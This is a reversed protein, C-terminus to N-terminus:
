LGKLNHNFPDNYGFHAKLFELEERFRPIPLHVSSGYSSCTTKANKRTMNGLYKYFLSGWENEIYIFDEPLDFDRPDPVFRDQNCSKETGGNCIVDIVKKLSEFLSLRYFYLDFYLDNALLM